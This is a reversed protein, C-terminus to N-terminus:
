HTPQLPGPGGFRGSINLWPGSTGTLPSLDKMVGIQRTLTPPDLGDNRFVSVPVMPTSSCSDVNMDHDRDLLLRRAVKQRDLLCELLAAFQPDLDSDFSADLSSRIASLRAILRHRSGLGGVAGVGLMNNLYEVGSAMNGLLRSGVGSDILAYFSALTGGFRAITGSVAGLARAIAGPDGLDVTPAFLELEDQFPVAELNQIVRFVPLTGTAAAPVKLIFVLASGIEDNNTNPVVFAPNVLQGPLSSLRVGQCTGNNPYTMTSPSASLQSIKAPNTSGAQFPEGAMIRAVYWEGIRNLDSNTDFCHACQSVTRMKNFNGALTAAQPHAGESWTIQDDDANVASIYSYQNTGGAKTKLSIGFYKFNTGTVGTIVPEFEPHVVVTPQLNDDPVKVPLHLEPIALSDAYMRADKTLTLGSSVGNAKGRRTQRLRLLIEEAFPAM